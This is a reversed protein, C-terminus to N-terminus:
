ELAVWLVDCSANAQSQVQASLHAADHSTGDLKVTLDALARRHRDRERRMAGVIKIAADTGVATTTLLAVVLTLM